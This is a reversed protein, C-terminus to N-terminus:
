TSASGLTRFGEKSRLRYSRAVSIQLTELLRRKQAACYRPMLSMAEASLNRIKHKSVTVEGASLRGQLELDRILEVPIEAEPGADAAPDVPALYSDLNLRDLTLDFRAAVTDLDSLSVTGTM